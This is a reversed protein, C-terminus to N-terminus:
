SRYLSFVIVHDIGSASSHRCAAFFESRMTCSPRCCSLSPESASVLFHILSPITPLTVITSDQILRLVGCPLPCHTRGIGASQLALLMRQSANRLPRGECGNSALLNMLQRRNQSNEPPLMVSFM